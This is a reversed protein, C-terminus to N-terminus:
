FLHSSHITSKEIWPDMEENWLNFDSGQPNLHTKNKQFRNNQHVSSGKDEM